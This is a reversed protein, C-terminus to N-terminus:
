QKCRFIAQPRGAKDLRSTNRQFRTTLESTVLKSLDIRQCLLVFAVETWDGHGDEGFILGSIALPLLTM